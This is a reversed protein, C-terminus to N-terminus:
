NYPALDSKGGIFSWILLGAMTLLANYALIEFGITMGFWAKANANLIFSLVAAGICILVVAKHDRYRIDTFLGFAFLGLLPGYTFGAAKFVKWVVSDDNYSRFIIIVMFIIVSFMLHVAYRTKTNQGEKKMGLFDVCFATTLSTLASDASSYAAALLGLIFIGGIIPTSHNLAIEPFLLDNRVKVEGGVIESPISIGAQAAYIFLLAGLCLIIFNVAILIVSFSLMNKQADPLNKCTLNKQMMDQDLGTMVIAILAGNLMQLLFHKDGSFFFMQGLDKSKILSWLESVPTDIKDSIFWVMLGISLLMFATQFTDTIVITKIGGRFTYLWIFFIAILVTVPFSIGWAAFVFNYLVMAVLYLRLSAGIIRSILFFASGTKYSWFGFRDELYTYISTLNLRYYIPMLVLAIFAYGFLYGIVMQMYSFQNSEVVGPVSIFTIGSLSAGIMGFAVLFWPSKNNASFFAENSNDRGTIFSILFLIGFYAAALTLILFPGV